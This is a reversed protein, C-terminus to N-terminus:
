KQEREVVRALRERLLQRARHIRSRVTGVPCNLLEAIEEYRFGELEKLVLADKYEPPLQALAAQIQSTTEASSLPSTPDSDLRHDTPEHDDSEGDGNLSHVGRRVKRRSSVAAHYAIRFLWAYFSSEQRFSGLKQYALLFADQAVDRADHFSGLMHCLTGFLRDQYKLVLEGFADRNGALTSEILRSDDSAVIM